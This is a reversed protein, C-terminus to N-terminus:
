TGAAQPELLRPLGEALGQRWNVFDHGGPRERYGLDYGRDALVDRLRRTVSLMTLSPDSLGLPGVELTGVELWFRLPLPLTSEYRRTLWEHESGWWLSPSLALVGTFADLRRYASWCAALGGYSYGGIVTRDRDLLPYRARLAPLLEDALFNPFAPHCPYEVIRSSPTPNHVLAAVFAPVRRRHLLNDFIRPADMGLLFCEGDLLVVLPLPAGGPASPSWVTVARENELVSSAVTFTEVRQAPAEADHWVFRGAEPLSVVSQWKEPPPAPGAGAIMLATVPRCRHPNHPDAYSIDYIEELYRGLAGPDEVADASAEAIPRRQFQYVTAADAPATTEAWWVGRCGPLPQMPQQEVGRFLQSSVVPRDAAGTAVFTVLAEAPAGPLSEVLPGQAVRLMRELEVEAQAPDDTARTAIRRLSPNRPLASDFRGTM